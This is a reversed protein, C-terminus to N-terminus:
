RSSRLVPPVPPPRAAMEERLISVAKELQPDRRAAQDAPTLPVPHSPLAGNLDLDLGTEAHFWGRFPVQLRGAEPITTKGASIVGGATAVGILPARGTQNMAHCFVEANSFTNENCLVVLPKDWSPRTRRDNPYGRPGNRPITFSHIPQTFLELLQDAVRGGVNDRLDLIMGEHDLSALYVDRELRLFDERNMRTLPFYAVKGTGEAKLAIEAEREARDLARARPYSICRLEITRESGDLARIVVPLPKDEAGNFFRHLPTRTTVNEGAISRVVEGAHPAGPIATVPSGPLVRRILLSGEETSDDFVLGPHLTADDKEVPGPVNPWPRLVLTLHSANLEGLLQNVVRDFQRSDRAGAAANEYKERMAAWDWGNMAPDYFREHLTRWVKRFGVRLVDERRRDTTLSIPFRVSKGDKLLSPTRDTRWVLTGDPSVRIPIGREAAISEMKSGSVPLRYLNTNSATRSQFLLATSDATWIVRTPELGRTSLQNAREAMRQLTTDDMAPSLGGDGFDIQWLQARGDGGRRSTFALRRGNPSWRPSGDFSPQRTLNVPPRSADAAAIWVDRTSHRDKAALALWRGCPSWDFTPKDWSEFVRQHDAGDARATLVIGTGEVWAIRSGDPSIRFRSKSAAGSTVPMEDALGSDRLRARFYNADLGDDRLFYLWEGDPSFRVSGEDERSETLRVPKHGRKHIRWLDGASSFVSQQLDATFDADATGSVKRIERSHDALKEDTWLELRVPAADEAPRYRFVELGRRFVFTSGDGSVAPFVVGDGAFATVMRDQKRDDRRSWLNYTGSRGSVYHFGRGDPDWMPSRAETEEAIQCEFEGSRRDFLWIQSARSGRYGKRYIQEGGRCFLIRQGDPSIAASHGTADFLRRERRDETLDIEMVRTARHGSSDRLGRVLARCGDASISELANGETHHTHRRIEEGAASVSFVQLSGSRDSSFYIRQGDPSFRPYTDRAPHGVLRRAEGGDAPALWLDNLWEFVMTTGDPSLQHWASLRLPQADDPMDAAAASAATLTAFLFGRFSKFRMAPFLGARARLALAITM